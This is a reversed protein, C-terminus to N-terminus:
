LLALRYSYGRRTRRYRVHLGTERTFRWLYQRENLTPLVWRLQRSAHWGPVGLVRLIARTCSTM